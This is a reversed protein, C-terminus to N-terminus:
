SHPPNPEYSNGIIKMRSCEDIFKWSDTNGLCPLLIFRAEEKQWECVFVKKGMALKDKHYVDKGGKDQLGVFQMLIGTTNFIANPDGTVLRNEFHSDYVGWGIGSAFFSLVIENGDITKTDMYWMMKRGADWVRFRIERM